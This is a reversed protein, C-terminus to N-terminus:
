LTGSNEEKLAEEGDLTSLKFWLFIGLVKKPLTSLDELMESVKGSAEASTKLEELTAQGYQSVSAARKPFVGNTTARPSFGRGSELFTKGRKEGGSNGECASISKSGLGDRETVESGQTYFFTPEISEALVLM